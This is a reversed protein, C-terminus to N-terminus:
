IQKDSMKKIATQFEKHNDYFEDFNDETLLKKKVLYILWNYKNGKNKDFKEDITPKHKYSTPLKTLEAARFFFPKLDLQPMFDEEGDEADSELKQDVTIKTLESLESSASDLATKDPSIKRSFGLSKIMARHMYIVYHIINYGKTLFAKEDRDKLMADRKSICNKSVSQFYNDGAVRQRVKQEDTLIQSGRSGAPQRPARQRICEERMFHEWCQREVSNEALFVGTTQSILLRPVGNKVQTPAVLLTLFPFTALISGLTIGSTGKDGIGLKLVRLFMEKNANPGIPMNKLVTTRTVGYAIAHALTEVDKDVGSYLVGLVFKRVRVEDLARGAAYFQAAAVLRMKLAGIISSTATSQSSSYSMNVYTSSHDKSSEERILSIAKNRVEAAKTLGAFEKIEEKKDSM